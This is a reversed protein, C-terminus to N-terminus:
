KDGTSGCCSHPSNDSYRDHFKVWDMIPGENRGKPTLDLFHHAGILSDLGRAYTSYTHFIKGESDRYFVSLGPMEEAGGDLPQYNYHIPGAALEEPTFSVGFDSNFDSGASSLWAFRWGMRQRFAQFQAWPAHSIAVFSVDHHALHLDAGDFHDALFSVNPPNM